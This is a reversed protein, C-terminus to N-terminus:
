YEYQPYGLVLTSSYTSSYRPIAIGPLHNAAGPRNSATTTFFLSHGRPLQVGRSHQSWREPQQVVPIVQEVSSTRRASNATCGGWAWRESPLMLWCALGDGQQVRHHFQQLCRSPHLPPALLAVSTATALPQDLPHRAFRHLVPSSQM